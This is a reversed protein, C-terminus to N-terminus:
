LSITDFRDGEISIIRDQTNKDIDIFISLTREPLYSQAKESWEILCIGGNYFFDEGGLLEFEEESGLRYLDMHTLLLKGDYQSLITFTPSTIPETIKLGQAIGKAFTTKGAGLTGHLTLVDNAVLKEGIKKGLLITEETTKTIWKM